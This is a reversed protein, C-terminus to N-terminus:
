TGLPLSIFGKNPNNVYNFAGVMTKHLGKKRSRLANALKNCKRSAIEARELATESFPRAPRGRHSGRKRKGQHREDGEPVRLLDTIPVDLAHAFLVLKQFSLNKLGREVQSIYQASLASECMHGALEKQSWGKAERLASVRHGFVIMLVTAEKACNILDM